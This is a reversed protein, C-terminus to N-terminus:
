SARSARQSTAGVGCGSWGSLRAFSCAPSLPMGPRGGPCPHRVAVNCRRSMRQGIAVMGIASCERTTPLGIGGQRRWERLIIRTIHSAPCGEPYSSNAGIPLEASAACLSGAWLGRKGDRGPRALTPPHDQEIRRRSSPDGVLGLRPQVSPTAAGRDHVGPAVHLQRNVIPQHLLHM